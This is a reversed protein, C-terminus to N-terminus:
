TLLIRDCWGLTISLLEEDLPLKALRAYDARVNLIKSESDLSRLVHTLNEPRHVEISEAKPVLVSARDPMCFEDRVQVDKCGTVALVHCKTNEALIKRADIAMHERFWKAPTKALGCHTSVFDPQDEANIKTIIDEYQRDLKDKTLVKRLLWGKLGKERQVEALSREKQLSMADEITEGFGSYFICGKAKPLGAEAALRCILPLLIAGESHGLFAISNKDIRPHNALFRFAEVADSVLDKMGARYYLNKDGQKVSKGVGRKDYTLVSIQRHSSFLDAFRNSTNLKMGLLIGPVNGDRDIPGSGSVIVIAPFTPSASSEDAGTPLYLDGFIQFRGDPSPFSVEM